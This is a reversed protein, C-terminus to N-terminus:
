RKSTPVTGPCSGRSQDEEDEYHAGLLVRVGSGTLNVSPYSNCVM